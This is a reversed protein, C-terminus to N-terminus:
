HWDNMFLAAGRPILCKMCRTEPQHALVAVPAPVGNHWGHAGSAHRWGHACRGARRHLEFVEGFVRQMLRRGEKLQNMRQKM